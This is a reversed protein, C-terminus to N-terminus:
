GSFFMEGPKKGLARWATGPASYPLTKSQVLLYLNVMQNHSVTRWPFDGTKIPLGDVFLGHEM